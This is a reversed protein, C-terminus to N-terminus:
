NSSISLSSRCRCAGRSSASRSRTWCKATSGVAPRACATPKQLTEALAVDRDRWSELFAHMPKYLLIMGLVTGFSLQFGANYLDLPHFILMGWAALALLQLAASTRRFILGVGLVVALLAARWVPPAPLALMAYAFVFVVCVIASWRPRLCLLRCLFYVVGGLVAVHMGSVALQHSTGTRRFQEQVDRLEPDHDGLM